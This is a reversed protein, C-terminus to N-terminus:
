QPGQPGLDVDRSSAFGRGSVVWSIRSRGKDAAKRSIPYVVARQDSFGMTVHTRGDLFAQAEVVGRRHVRGSTVPPGEDPISNRGCRRVFAM